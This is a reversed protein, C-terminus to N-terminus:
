RQTAVVSLHHCSYEQNEKPESAADVASGNGLVFPMVAERPEPSAQQKAGKAQHRYGSETVPLLTAVDALHSFLLPDDQRWFAVVSTV